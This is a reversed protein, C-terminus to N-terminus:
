VLGIWRGLSTLVSVIREVLAYLQVCVLVSKNSSCGSCCYNADQLIPTYLFTDSSSNNNEMNKRRWGYEFVLCVVVRVIMSSINSRVM